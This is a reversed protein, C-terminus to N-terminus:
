ICSMATESSFMGVAIAEDVDDTGGGVEDCDVVGDAVDSVGVINVDDVGDGAAIAVFEVAM